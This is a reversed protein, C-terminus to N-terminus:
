TASKGASVTDMAAKAGGVNKSGQKIVQELKEYVKKTREGAIGPENNSTAGMMASGGKAGVYALMMMWVNPLTSYATLEVNALVASQLNSISNDEGALNGSFMSSESSYLIVSLVNDVWTALAIIVNTFELGFYLAALTLCVKMDFGSFVLLIPIVALFTMQFVCVFIPVSNRQIVADPAKMMNGLTTGILAALSGLVGDNSSGSDTVAGAGETASAFFTTPKATSIKAVAEVAVRTREEESTFLNSVVSYADEKASAASVAATEIHSYATNCNVRVSSGTVDTSNYSVGATDALDVPVTMYLQSYLTTLESSGAWLDSSATANSNVYKSMAESLCQSSWKATLQQDAPSSLNTQNLVTEALKVDSACPMTAIATNTVQSSYNHLLAWFLPIKMDTGNFNGIIQSSATSVSSNEASTEECTFSSVASEDFSVDLDASPIFGLIFVPMMILIKERLFKVALEGANGEDEGQTMSEVISVVIAVLFPAYVLGSTCIVEIMVDMLRVGMMLTYPEVWVNTIM